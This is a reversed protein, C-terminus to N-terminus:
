VVTSLSLTYSYKRCLVVLSSYEAMFHLFIEQVASSSPWWTSSYKRCLVVLSSCEAMFHLFIEQVSYEVMFHPFTEQVHLPAVEGHLKPCM